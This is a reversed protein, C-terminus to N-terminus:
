TITNVDEWIGEEPRDHCNHECCCCTGRKRKKNLGLSFSDGIGFSIYPMLMDSKEDYTGNATILLLKGQQLSWVIKGGDIPNRALRDLKFTAIAKFKGAELHEMMQTFGPRGLKKASDIDSYTLSEDIEYGAKEALRRVKDTQSQIDSPDDKPNIRIYAAAKPKDTM